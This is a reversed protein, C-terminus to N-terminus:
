LGIYWCEGKISPNSHAKLAPPFPMEETAFIVMELGRCHIGEKSFSAGEWLSVLCSSVCKQLGGLSRSIQPWRLLIWIALCKGQRSSWVYVPSLEAWRVWPFANPLSFATKLYGNFSLRRGRHFWVPLSVKGMKPFGKGLQKGRQSIRIGSEWGVKDIFVHDRWKRKEWEGKLGKLIVKIVLLRTHNCKHLQWHGWQHFLRNM